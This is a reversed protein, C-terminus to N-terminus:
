APIAGPAPGLQPRCQRRREHDSLAPQGGSSQAMCADFSAGYASVGAPSQWACGSLLGAIIWASSFQRPM